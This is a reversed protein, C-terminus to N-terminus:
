LLGAHSTLRRQMEVNTAAADVRRVNTVFTPCIGTTVDHSLV